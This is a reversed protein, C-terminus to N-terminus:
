ARKAIIQLAKENMEIIEEFNVPVTMKPKYSKKSKAHSSASKQIGAKRNGNEKPIKSPAQRDITKM